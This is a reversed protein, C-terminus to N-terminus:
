NGEAAAKEGIRSDSVRAAAGFALSTLFPVEGSAILDRFQEVTVPTGDDDLGAIDIICEDALAQGQCKDETSPPLGDPLYATAGPQQARNLTRAAERRLAALRDRYALTFGRTTVQFTMGAPGVTVTEGDTIAKTNRLFNSLKAM